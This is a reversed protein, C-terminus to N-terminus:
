RPSSAVNEWVAPAGIRLFVPYAYGPFAAEIRARLETLTEGSPPQAGREAQLAATLTAVTTLYHHQAALLEPGGSRGRGPHIREVGLREIEDLRAHWEALHGLELWAHGHPAVLDGVFAHGGHTVVVHADSCGPGLMHLGLTLGAVELPRSTDGFSELPPPADPYDPAYRDRFARSRIEHVHPVLGLVEGSTLVPIGRARFVAAGNFKDPNAHLVIALRVPVDTHAEITHLLREAESPMFQTDIVVVGDPGEIWYSRTHFGRPASEFAYVGDSADLTADAGDPSAARRSPASACGPSAVGVSVISLTALVLALRSM